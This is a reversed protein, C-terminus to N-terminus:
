RRRPPRRGAPRTAPGADVDAGLQDARMRPPVTSHTIQCPTGPKLESPLKPASSRRRRPPMPKAQHAASGRRPPRRREDEQHHDERDGVLAVLVGGQRRQGDAQRQRHDVERRDREGARRHVGGARDARGSKAPLSAIMWSQSNMRAGSSPAREGADEVGREEAAGALRDGPEPRRKARRVAGPRHGPVAGRVGVLLLPVLLVARCCAGGGPWGSAASGGCHCCCGCYGVAAWGDRGAPRGGGGACCRGAAVAARGATAPRLRGSAPRGGVQADAAPVHRQSCSASPAAPPRDGRRPGAGEAYYRRVVSSPPEPRAYADETVLLGGFTGAPVTRESTSPWCPPGTRPSPRAREQVYGDGVRPTRWCRSAPRPATRAPWAVLAASGSPREGFLWVNGTGTRPTTGTTRRVGDGDRDIAPTHVVVCAVGAVTEAGDEVRVELRERRQRLRRVDLRHRARAPAVPQRRRCSTTRTPARADPHGARRRGRASRRPTPRAAGRRLRDPLLVAALSVRRPGGTAAALM